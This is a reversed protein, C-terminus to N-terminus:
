HNLFAVRGRISHLSESLEAIEQFCRVIGSRDRHNSALASPLGGSHMQRVRSGEAEVGIEVNRNYAHRRLILFLEFTIKLAALYRPQLDIHLIANGIAWHIGRIDDSINATGLIRFFNNDHAPM